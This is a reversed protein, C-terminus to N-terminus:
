GWCDGMASADVQEVLGLNRGIAEANAKSMHKIPLDHIQIWFSERDFSANKIAEKKGLKYLGLLYKDFSWPGRMLIHDLDDENDFLIM